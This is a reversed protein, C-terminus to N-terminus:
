TTLPVLVALLNRITQASAAMPRFVEKALMFFAPMRGMIWPKMIEASTTMTASSTSIPIPITQCADSIVEFCDACNGVGRTKLAYVSKRCSSRSQLDSTRIWDPTRSFGGSDQSTGPLKQIQPYAPFHILYMTSTCICIRFTHSEIAAIRWRPGRQRNDTKSTRNMCSATRRRKCETNIM